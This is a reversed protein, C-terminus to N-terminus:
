WYALKDNFHNEPRIIISLKVNNVDRIKYITIMDLALLIKQNKLGLSSLSLMITSENM